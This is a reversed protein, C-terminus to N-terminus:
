RVLILSHRINNVENRIFLPYISYAKSVPFKKPGMSLFKDTFTSGATGCALGSIRRTSLESDREIIQLIILVNMIQQFQQFHVM